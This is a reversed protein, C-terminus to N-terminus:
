AGAPTGVPARLHKGFFGLMKAWADKAPGERYANANEFNLFGHGAGPYPHLEHAKGHKALEADIKRMDEPSPNRDDGGFFGILPCGIGATLDFPSPGEGGFPEMTSGPYYAAAARFAPVQSALLYTIRGGMCCGTVGVAGVQVGPLRRLYDVAANADNVLLPLKLREQIQQTKVRREPDDRSMPKVDEVINDPFRHFFDPAAAVYGAEALRDVTARVFGDVGGIHLAVVVAPHPGPSDPVGLFIRMPSNDVVTTEWRSAM